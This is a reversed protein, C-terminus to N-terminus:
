QHPLPYRSQSMELAERQRKKLLESTGLEFSWQLIHLNGQSASGYCLSRISSMQIQGADKREHLYLEVCSMSSTISEMTTSHKTHIMLYAQKFAISTGGIYRYYGEGLFSLCLILVDFPIDYITYRSGRRQVANGSATSPTMNYSTGNKPSTEILLTSSTSSNLHTIDEQQDLLPCPWSYTLDKYNKDAMSSKEKFRIQSQNLHAFSHTFQILVGKFCSQPQNLHAFSHSSIERLGQGTDAQTLVKLSTHLM